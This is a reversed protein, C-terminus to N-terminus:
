SCITRAHRPYDVGRLKPFAKLSIDDFAAYDAQLKINPPMM